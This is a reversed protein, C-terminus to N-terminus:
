GIVPSFDPLAAILRQTYPDRPNQFIEEAPRSEVITGGALIDIRDCLTRLALLDHSVFLIATGYSRNVEALTALVERTTLVDLASTVEDAVLLSPRHLLATAILVRQAQGISIQSPFRGLFEGDAPLGCREFLEVTRPLGTGRWDGAHIEWALRVQDRLRLAPNLASEAGQLVLAIRRGRIKRWETESAQLVERGDLRLSGEASAGKWRLLRLLALALTSKGSGSQGALGVREGPAITLALDRLVM